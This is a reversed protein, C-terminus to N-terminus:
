SIQTIEISAEVTSGGRIEAYVPTMDSTTQWLTMKSGDSLELETVTLERGDRKERWSGEPHGELIFDMLMPLATMPSLGQPSGGADLIVGDFSLRAADPEMHAKVQAILEPALVEVVEEQSNLLYSLTYEDVAKGQSFQLDATISHEGRQSFTERWQTFSEEAQQSKGCGCLLLSIMLALM